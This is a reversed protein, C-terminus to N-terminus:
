RPFLLIGYIYVLLHRSETGVIIGYEFRRSLSDATVNFRVPQRAVSVGVISRFPRIILNGLLQVANRTGADGIGSLYSIATMNYSMNRIRLISVSGLLSMTGQGVSPPELISLKHKTCQPVGVAHHMWQLLSIQPVVTLLGSVQPSQSSM